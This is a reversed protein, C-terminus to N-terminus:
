ETVDCRGRLQRALELDRGGIAAGTVHGQCFLTPRSWQCLTHRSWTVRLCSPIVHGHSTSLLTHRSWTPESPVTVM